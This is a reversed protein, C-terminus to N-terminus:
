SYGDICQFQQTSLRNEVYDINVSHSITPPLFSGVTFPLHWVSVCISANALWRRNQTQQDCVKVSKMWIGEEEEHMDKKVM